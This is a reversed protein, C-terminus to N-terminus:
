KFATKRKMLKEKKTNQIKGSKKWAFKEEDLNEKLGMVKRKIIKKETSRKQIGEKWMMGKNIGRIKRLLHGREDRMRANGTKQRRRWSRKLKEFMQNKGREKWIYRAEDRGRSRRM